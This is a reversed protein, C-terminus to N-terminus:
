LHVEEERPGCERSGSVGRVDQVNIWLASVADSGEELGIGEEQSSDRQAATQPDSPTCTPLFRKGHSTWMGPM